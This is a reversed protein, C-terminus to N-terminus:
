DDGDHPEESTAHTIITACEGSLRGGETPFNWLMFRVDPSNETKVGDAVLADPLLVVCAPGAGAHDDQSPPANDNHPAPTSLSAAALMLAGATQSIM